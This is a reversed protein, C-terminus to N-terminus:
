APPSDNQVGAPPVVRPSAPPTYRQFLNRGEISKLYADVNELALRGSDGEVVGETRDTGNVVLAEVMIDMSIGGGDATPRLSLQTLKHLQPLSYFRYLFRTVKPLDGEAHATFAIATYADGYPKVATRRVQNFELGAEKLCDMLWGRYATQAVEINQPLSKERWAELNKKARTSLVVESRATRLDREAQRSQGERNALAASYKGWLTWGGWLVIVGVTAALLTKERQTM